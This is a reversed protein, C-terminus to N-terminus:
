ESRRVMQDWQSLWSINELVVTLLYTSIPIGIALDALYAFDVEGPSGFIGTYQLVAITVLATAVFKLHARYSPSPFKM